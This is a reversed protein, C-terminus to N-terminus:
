LLLGENVQAVIQRHHLCNLIFICYAYEVIFTISASRSQDVNSQMGQSDGKDKM